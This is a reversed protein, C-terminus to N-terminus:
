ITSSITPFVVVNLWLSRYHPLCNFLYKIPHHLFFFFDLSIFYFADEPSKLNKPFFLSKNETSIRNCVKDSGIDLGKYVQVSDASIIEGNLREALALSVATKGVATPGTVVLVKPKTNPSSPSQLSRSDASGSMATISTFPKLQAPRRFHLCRIFARDCRNIVRM